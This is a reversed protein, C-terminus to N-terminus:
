LSSDISRTSCRSCSESFSSALRHAPREDFWSSLAKFKLVVFPQTQPNQFSIMPPALDAAFHSVQLNMVFFEPTVHANIALLIENCNTGLTM